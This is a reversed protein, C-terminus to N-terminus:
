PRPNPQYRMGANRVNGRVELHVLASEARSENRFVGITRAPLVLDASAGPALTVLSDDATGRRAFVTVAVRGTNRVDVDFAAAQDGGFLFSTAPAITTDSTLDGRGLTACAGALLLLAPLLTVRTLASRM